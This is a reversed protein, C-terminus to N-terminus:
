TYSCSRLLQAVPSNLMIQRLGYKHYFQELLMTAFLNIESDNKSPILFLATKVQKLDNLNIDDKETNILEGVSHNNLFNLRHACSEIVIDAMNGVNERFSKLHIVEPANPSCLAVDKMEVDFSMVMLSPDLNPTYPDIYNPEVYNILAFINYIGYSNRCNSTTISMLLEKELKKTKEVDCGKFLPQTHELITDVFLEVDNETNIYITPDYKNGDKISALNVCRIKYGNRKLKSSYNEYLQNNPDIIFYSDNVQMISPKSIDESYSRLYKEFTNTMNGGSIFDILALKIWGGKILYKYKYFIKMMM